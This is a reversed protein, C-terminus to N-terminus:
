TLMLIGAGAPDTMPILLGRYMLVVFLGSYMLVVFLGRYMLLGSYMPIYIYIYVFILLGSDEYGGHNNKLRHIRTRDPHAPALPPLASDRYHRHM